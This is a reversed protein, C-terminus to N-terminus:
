LIIIIYLIINHKNFYPHLLIYFFILLLIIKKYHICGINLITNKFKTNIIYIIFIFIVLFIYKYNEFFYQIYLLKNWSETYHGMAIVNKKINKIDCDDLSKCYVVENKPIIYCENMYEKLYTSFLRGGSIREVYMTDFIEYYKRTYSSNIIYNLLKKFFDHKPVCGIFSQSVFYYGYNSVVINNKNILTDLSKDGAEIDIDIYFGGYLYLILYRALDSKQQYLKFYDYIKILECNFNTILERISIDDWLKYTYCENKKSKWSNIYPKYKDPINNIGQIWIQHILKNIM